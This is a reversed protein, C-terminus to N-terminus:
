FCALVWLSIVQGVPLRLSCESSGIVPISMGKEETAIPADTAPPEEFVPAKPPTISFLCIGSTFLVPFLKFAEKPTLLRM